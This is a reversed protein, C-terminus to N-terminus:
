RFVMGVNSAEWSPWGSVEMRTTTYPEALHEWRYLTLDFTEERQYTNSLVVGPQQGALVAASLSPESTPESVMDQSSTGRRLTPLFSRSVAVAAVLAVAAVGFLLARPILGGRQWQRPPTPKSGTRKWSFYGSKEEEIPEYRYNETWDVWGTTERGQHAVM